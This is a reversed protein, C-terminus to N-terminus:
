NPRPHTVPRGPISRCNQSLKVINRTISINLTFAIVGAMAVGSGATVLLLLTVFRSIRDVQSRVREIEEHTLTILEEAIPDVAQAQLDFENFLSRIAVNLDLMDEAVGQYAELSDLALTKDGADLGATQEIERQLVRAVNFASQM